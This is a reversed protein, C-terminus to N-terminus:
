NQEADGPMMLASLFSASLGFISRTRNAYDNTLVIGTAVIEDFYPHCFYFLSIQIALKIDQRYQMLFFKKIKSM